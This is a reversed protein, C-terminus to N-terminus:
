SSAGTGATVTYHQPYPMGAYDVARESGPLPRVGPRLLIRRVMEPVIARAPYKGVCDHAGHGLLMHHVPTRDPRFAYPDEVVTEDFMASAMHAHVVTGPTLLTERPTGAALVHERM